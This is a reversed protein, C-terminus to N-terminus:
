DLDARLVTLSAPPGSNTLVFTTCLLIKNTAMGKLYIEVHWLFALLCFIYGDSTSGLSAVSFVFM